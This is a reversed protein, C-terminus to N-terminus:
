SSSEIKDPKDPTLLLKQEEPSFSIIAFDYVKDLELFESPKKSTFESAPVIGIIDKKIEIHAGFNDTKVVKGKVKEGVNYKVKLKEWPNPKLAKLSLSIRNDEITIIKAKIKDGVKIISSPDNVIGWSLESKHILGDIMRTKTKEEEGDETEKTEEEEEKKIRVFVGFDTIETVEADVIEDVKFKAIEKSSQAQYAALESLILKDEDEDFDIIMIQMEQNRLKQLHQVIKTVDGNEVKPYNEPALQSLPMFGQIGAIETILGGKNLNTIKVTIIEKKEFLEKIEVWSSSFQAEKLSLERLGEENELELLLAKIENGPKLNRQMDLNSYFHSPYIIGTGLADLDIIVNKRSVSIIKGSLISGVEPLNLGTKSLIHRMSKIKPPMILNKESDITESSSNKEM